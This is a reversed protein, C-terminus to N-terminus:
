LLFRVKLLSASPRPLVARGRSLFPDAGKRPVSLFKRSWGEDQRVLWSSAARTRLSRRVSLVAWARAARLGARRLGM